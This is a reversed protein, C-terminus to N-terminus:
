KNRYKILLRQFLFVNSGIVPILLLILIKKSSATKMENSKSPLSDLCNNSVAIVDFTYTTGQILYNITTKCDKVNAKRKQKKGGSPQILVTYDRPKIKPEEWTLDISRVPNGRNSKASINYPVYEDGLVIM